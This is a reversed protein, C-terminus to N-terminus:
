KSFISYKLGNLYDNNDFDIRLNQKYWWIEWSTIIQTKPKTFFEGSNLSTLTYDINQTKSSNFLILYNQSNSVENLFDIITSTEFSLKWFDSVSLDVNRRKWSTDFDFEGVWSIWSDKSVINWVLDSTNLLMELRLKLAKKEINTSSEIYFLPIIDYWLPLINWGYSSVKTWINYSIKVDQNWNFNSINLPKKSLLISKNNITNEINSDIAYWNEKIDLLALEWASRAWNSAKIYNWMARNDVLEKLVLNYVWTTLVLLFGVMLLAIVSSFANKNNKM